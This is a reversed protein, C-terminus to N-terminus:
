STRRVTNAHWCNWSGNLVKIVAIALWNRPLTFDQQLQVWSNTLVAGRWNIVFPVVSVSLTEGEDILGRTLEKAYSFVSENSYKQHKDSYATLMDFNDAVITPDIIVVRSGRVCILDPKLFTRGCPVRPEVHVTWGRARVAGAIWKCLSDHRGIRLGHTTSCVQLIHGLSCLKDPCVRCTRNPNGARGRAARLPTKLCAARVHIARIFEQGKMTPIECPHSLWRSSIPSKGHQSLGKGDVTKGLLAAWEGAQMRKNIITEGTLWNQFEVQERAFLKAGSTSQSIVYSLVPHSALVLKQTREKRMRIVDREVNMLGLGGERVSTYFFALPVDHPLHLLSRVERRIDIDLQALKGRLFAGLVLQHLLSPLLFIKLSMLKQQPDLRSEALLKMRTRLLIRLPEFEIGGPGISIGLYKYYAADTALCPVVSEEVELCPVSDIYYKKLMGCQKLTMTACKKANMAMGALTMSRKLAEFQMKLGFTSEAFLVTDDAYCAYDCIKEGDGYKFGINPELDMCVMAMVFNFLDPSLPDGQLVGRRVPYKETSGGKFQVTAKKYVKQLYVLLPIPVGALRAARILSDHSVSGFANAVDVFAMSLPKRERKAIYILSRLLWVNEFCGDMPRFGRQQEPLEISRFRRSLTSHFLRLFKSTVVIPRYDKPVAPRPIKPILTVAGGCLSTPPGGLLLWINFWQVIEKIPARRIDARKVGDGGAGSDKMGDIIMQVELQTVPRALEWAASQAHVRREDKVSDVGFSEGWYTELQLIEVGPSGQVSGELEESRFEGKFVRKITDGPSKKWCSQIKWRRFNNINARCPTKAAKIPIKIKPGGGAPVPAGRIRPRNRKRILPRRPKPKGTLRGVWASWASDLEVESTNCPLEGLALGEVGALDLSHEEIHKILDRRWKDAPDDVVLEEVPAELAVPGEVPEEEASDARDLDEERLEAEEVAAKFLANRRQGGISLATRNGLKEAVLGDVKTKAAGPFERAYRVWLRAAFKHEEASWNKRTRDIDVAATAPDVMTSRHAHAEHVGRGSSTTWPGLNVCGPFRCSFLVSTVNLAEQRLAVPEGAPGAEPAHQAAGTVTSMNKKGGKVAGSLRAADLPCPAHNGIPRTSRDGPGTNM